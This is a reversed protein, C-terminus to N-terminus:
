TGHLLKQVSGADYAVSGRFQPAQPIAQPNPVHTAPAHWHSPPVSQGALLGRHEASKVVSGSLQPVHPWAQARGCSPHAPLM